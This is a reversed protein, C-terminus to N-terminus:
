RPMDKRYLNCLKLRMVSGDDTLKVEMREGNHGTAVCEQACLLIVLSHSQHRTHSVRANRLRWRGWNVSATDAGGSQVPYSRLRRSALVTPTALLHQTHSTRLHQKM